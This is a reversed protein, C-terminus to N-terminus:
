RREFSPLNRKYHLGQSSPRYGTASWTSPRAYHPRLAFMMGKKTFHAMKSIIHPDLELRNQGNCSIGVREEPEHPLGRPVAHKALNGANLLSVESAPGGIM